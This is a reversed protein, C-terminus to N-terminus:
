DVLQDPTPRQQRMVYAFGRRTGRPRALNVFAVFAM